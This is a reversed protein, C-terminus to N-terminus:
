KIKAFVMKGAATQLVSTVVIDLMQGVNSRAGEIVIMTGDNLYAIGQNNEKGEKIVNVIMEEGPLVATKVSNALDNINLVRVGQLEAVKNLNYDNTVVSAGLEQGLRILKADVQTLDDYDYDVIEVTCYDAEQMEKLLDLGRRGRNRKIADSSDAIYQLEELVFQPIIFVGELFHTKSIDAIRGDIIVSTDIIKNSCVNAKINPKVVKTRRERFLPAGISMLDNKKNLALKVGVIGFVVSLILPLYNGIFPIHSVANGVLNALILAIILGFAGIVIDNTPLKSLAGLFMESCRYIYTLIFPALLLGFLGFAIFGLAYSLIATMPVNFLGLNLIKPEVIMAVFPVLYVGLLLGSFAFVIIITCRWFRDLM